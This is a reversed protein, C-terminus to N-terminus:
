LNESTLIVLFFDFKFFAVVSGNKKCLDYQHINTINEDPFLEHILSITLDSDVDPFVDLVSPETSSFTKGLKATLSKILNENTIKNDEAYKVDM